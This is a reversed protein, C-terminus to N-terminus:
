PDFRWIHCARKAQRAQRAEVATPTWESASLDRMLAFASKKYVQLKEEFTSNSCERNLTRELLGFNGLRSTFSPQIAPPFSEEWDRGPNEPLIHEITAPDAEFDSTKGSLYQELAFLIYRILKKKPGSASLSLVEFNRKFVQDTVYVPRLFEFIEGTKLVKQTRIAKAVDHYVPELERPNLRSISTYRFSVVVMLKLLRLFEQKDLHVYGAMLVPFVQRVRFLALERIAFKAGQSAAWYEHFPNGLAAYIEAYSELEGLLEFVENAEKVRQKVLRFLRQQRVQKHELMLFFRLFEPFKKQGVTSLVEHWQRQLQELDLEGQVRSFLYNKLLDTSSLEVGRANLTEFVTYASLDDEVTIVIFLLRRAVIENLFNALEEGSNQFEDVQKLRQRFFLLAERMRSQSAGLKAPNPPERLQMLYSQFFDNDNRNLFLKSRQTLSAPDKEGLFRARLLEARQENKEANIHADRLERLNWLVALALLSLTTIRQQGDIISFERDSQAAVVIAGMYHRKEDGTRLEVLDAWLDQWQEDGWSYDRQFPPVRYLKGNGLLDLYTSTETNLLSARSRSM